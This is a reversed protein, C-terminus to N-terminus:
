FLGRGVGSTKVGPGSGGVLQYPLGQAIWSYRALRCAGVNKPVPSAQLRAAGPPLRFGLPWTKLFASM